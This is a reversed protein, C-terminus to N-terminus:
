FDANKLIFEVREKKEMVPVSVIELGIEMYSKILLDHIMRSDQDDEVRVHDKEFPLRDLIFVKKYKRASEKYIDLFFDPILCKRFILYAMTDPIARDLFTIESKTLSAELEQQMALIKMQFSLQDKRIEEMTLGKKLESEIYLRATEHATKYGLRSLLNITTTKGSSPAATIVFWNNKM